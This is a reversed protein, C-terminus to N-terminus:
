ALRLDESGGGIGRLGSRLWHSVEAGGAEQVSDIATVTPHGAALLASDTGETPERDLEVVALHLRGDEVRDFRTQVVGFDALRAARLGRLAHIPRDPVNVTLVGGRPGSLLLEILEPVLQAASDWHYDAGVESIALSIALGRVGNISATLAAGVTGSHVIARGINAGRNVGSLVVDPIPDLWGRTAALVIHAPLADVAYAEVGPLAPLERREILLRGHAEAAIIGAGAGSSERRPAAVIVELGAEDAARAMVHLGPADIGDDNTVLARLGSLSRDQRM